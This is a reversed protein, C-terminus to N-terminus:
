KHGRTIYPVNSPAKDVFVLGLYWHHTMHANIALALSEGFQFGALYEHGVASCANFDITRKTKELAHQIGIHYAASERSLKM